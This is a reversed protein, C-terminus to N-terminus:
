FERRWNTDAALAMQCPAHGGDLPLGLDRSHTSEGDVLDQNAGSVSPHPQLLQGHNM